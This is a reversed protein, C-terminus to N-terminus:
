GNFIYKFIRHPPTQTLKLAKYDIEKIFGDNIFKTLVDSIVGFNADDFILITELNSMKKCNILDQTACEEGHGGDIHILDFILENKYKPIEITSDGEILHINYKTKLYEFCPKSYNHSCLDFNVIQAKPNALLFIVNSHGGNFGM